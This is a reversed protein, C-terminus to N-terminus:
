QVVVRYFRTTVKPSQDVYTQLVPGYRTGNPAPMWTKLDDSYQVVYSMGVQGQWTLSFQGIDPTVVAIQSVNPIGPIIEGTARAKAIQAAGDAPNLPDLGHTIEYGDSLGDGDTDWKTPNLDTGNPNTVPDYPNYVHNGYTTLNTWNVAVYIPLACTQVGTM